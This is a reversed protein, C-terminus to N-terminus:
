KFFYGNKLSYTLAVSSNIPTTFYMMYEWYFSDHANIKYIIFASTVRQTESSANILAKIFLYFHSVGWLGLQHLHQLRSIWPPLMEMELGYLMLVELKTLSSIQEPLSTFKNRSLNLSTLNQFDMIIPPLASLENGELDLEELRTMLSFSEPLETMNSRYTLSIPRVGDVDYHIRAEHDIRLAELGPLFLYSPPTQAFGNFISLSKLTTLASFFEPLTHIQNESFELNTLSTMRSIFEPIETLMNGRLSLEELLSFSELWGPIRSIKNNPANLQTLSTLSSLFHPFGCIGTAELSLAQLRTMQSLVEPIFRQHNLMLFTALLPHDKPSFSVPPKCLKQIDRDIHSTLFRLAWSPTHEFRNSRLCLKFDTRLSQLTAPFEAIKNNYLDLEALNPLELAHTPFDEIRNSSLKISRLARIHVIETPVSSIKNDSMNLMTLNQLNSIWPPIDTIQNNEFSLKRLGTFYLISSDMVSIYNSIVELWCLQSLATLGAPFADIENKILQIARVNCLEEFSRGKEIPTDIVVIPSPRLRPILSVGHQDIEMM